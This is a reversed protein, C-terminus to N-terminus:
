KKFQELSLIYKNVKGQDPWQIYGDFKMGIKQLITESAKNKPNVAALVNELGLKNFGYEILAQAAETAYGKGWYKLSYGYLLEIGNLINCFQFGCYGIYANSDKLIVSYINGRKSDQKRCERLYEDKFDNWSKDTVGGTYVTSENESKHIYVNNLDEERPSSIYLRKTQLIM